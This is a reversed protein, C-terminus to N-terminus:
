DGYYKLQDGVGKLWHRNLNEPDNAAGVPAYINALRGLDGGARSYNRAITAVSANIGDEITPFRQKTKWKTKPDMLGAPNNGNVNSGNGTEHAMIAAALTPPIGRKEAASRVTDWQGELPTAKFRQDFLQRPDHVAAGAPSVPSSSSDSSPSPAQALVPSPTASAATDAKSGSRRDEERELIQLYERQMGEDRFYRPRDTRMLLEIARKRAEDEEIIPLDDDRM